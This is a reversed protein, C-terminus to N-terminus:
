ACEAKDERVMSSDKPTYWRTKDKAKDQWQRELDTGVSYFTVKRRGRECHKKSNYYM